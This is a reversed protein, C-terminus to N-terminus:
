HHISAPWCPQKHLRKRPAMGNRISLSNHEEQCLFPSVKV